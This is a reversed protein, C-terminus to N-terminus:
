MYKYKVFGHKVYLIVLSCSVIKILNLYNFPIASRNSRGCVFKFCTCIWFIVAISYLVATDTFCLTIDVQDHWISENSLLTDNDRRQFNYIIISYYNNYNNNVHM